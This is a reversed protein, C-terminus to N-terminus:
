DLHIRPKIELFLFGTLTLLINVKVIAPTEIMSLNLYILHWVNAVAVSYGLKKGIRRCEYNIRWEKVFKLM